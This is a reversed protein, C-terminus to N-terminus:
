EDNGMKETQEDKRQKIIKTLEEAAGMLQFFRDADAQTRRKTYQKRMYELVKERNAEYSKRKQELDKEHNAERYKRNREAIKDRNAEHYKRANKAKREPNAERWKRMRDRDKVRWAERADDSLEDWNKPKSAM